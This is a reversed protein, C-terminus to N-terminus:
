AEALERGRYHGCGHTAGVALVKLRELAEELAGTGLRWRRGRHLYARGAVPALVTRRGGSRIPRARATSPRVRIRASM